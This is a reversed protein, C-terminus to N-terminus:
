ITFDNEEKYHIAREFVMSLVRSFLGAIIFVLIVVLMATTPFLFTRIISGCIILFSFLSMKQLSIVNEMVFCDDAIVTIMMKRLERILFVAFIGLFLYCSLLETYHSRDRYAEFYDGALKLTYPLSLTTVIGGYFMIDLIIKTFIIIRDKM